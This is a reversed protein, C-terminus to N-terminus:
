RVSLYGISTSVRGASRGSVMIRYRGRRLRHPLRLVTDGARVARRVRVFSHGGRTVQLTLRCRASTAVRIRARRRHSGRLDAALGLGDTRRRLDVLLRSPRREALRVGEADSVAFGGRTLAVHRPIALDTSGPRVGGIAEGGGAVTTIQGAASVKRIRGNWSDAILFGGDPTAALGSPSSLRAATALGGDGAFGAAGRGPPGSGAVTAISGDAAVRRVRENDEDAILLRGAADVEVDSTRALQAATAPGGDGSFGSSGNGAVTHISGDGLVERVRDNGFDAVFFGGGPRWAVALPYDLSAAVAAGGDGSFAGPTGCRGAVTRILGDVGVARVCHNNTDAILYSGDAAVAVDQPGNLQAATAPGGDGGAGPHASGAVTVLRGNPLLRRIANSASTSDGLGDAVLLSGNPLEAMGGPNLTVTGTAAFMRGGGRPRRIARASWRASARCDGRDFYSSSGRARGGSLFFGRISPSLSAVVRLRFAGRASIRAPGLSWDLYAAEGQCAGPVGAVRIGFARRGDDSVGFSITGGGTLTGVYDQGRRPAAAGAAASWASFAVLGVLALYRARM